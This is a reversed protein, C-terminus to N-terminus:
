KGLMTKAVRIAEAANAGYSAGIKEAWEPTTCAGGVIVKTKPYIGAEKAAEVVRKQIVTTTSNRASVMIVDANTKKAKIIYNEVKVDRGLDHVEFGFGKLMTAIINKGLDHIDGEITGIVITGMKAKGVIRILEPEAVKHGEHAADTAVMVQPLFIEGDEFRQAIISMGLSLTDSVEKASIGSILVEQAIRRVIDINGDIVAEKLRGLDYTLHVEQDKILSVKLVSETVPNNEFYFSIVFNHKNM